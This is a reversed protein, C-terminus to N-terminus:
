GTRRPQARGEALAVARAVLLRAEEIKEAWTVTDGARFAEDAEEFATQADALLAQIQEATTGTQPQEGGGGQGPQEPEEPQIPGASDLGLVNALAGRLTEGIGVKGGYSVIM